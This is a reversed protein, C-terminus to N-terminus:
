NNKQNIQKEADNKYLPRYNFKKVKKYQKNTKVVNSYVEDICPYGCGSNFM